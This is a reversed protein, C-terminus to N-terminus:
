DDDALNCVTTLRVEVVQSATREADMLLRDALDSTYRTPKELVVVALDRPLAPYKM